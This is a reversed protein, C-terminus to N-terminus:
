VFDPVWARVVQDDRIRYVRNDYGEDKMIRTIRRQDQHKMSRAPLGLAGESLDLTTMYGRMRPTEGSMDPTDMWRMIASRWPDDSKWNGHEGKALREAEQWAIGSQLFRDRGEAWLQDREAALRDTDVQTFGPTRGVGLPLWRREGNPNALFDKENTTAIMIFRRKYQTTMEMFKPTWHEERRTIWALIEEEERSKLGQLEALEVIVKGRMKRAREVEPEHFSMNTAFESTPSMALVGSSKRMGQIGTLIPVMDAQCGPDLVRGALATWVYAGVSRAYGRTDDLVGFHEHWFPEIRSVGDWRLSDLWAVATDFSREVAVMHVGDRVLERGVGKLGVAEMQTRLRSYDVDGFPRWNETGREACVVSDKFIDYRLVIPTVRPSELALQVNTLSTEITGAGNRGFPPLILPDCIVKGNLHIVPDQHAPTATVAMGSFQDALYGSAQLFDSKNRADCSNHFCVFAGSPYGNTGAPFYATSTDGKAGGSHETEWPCSILIGGNSLTGFMDWRDSIWEAIPDEIAVGDGRQRDGRVKVELADIDIVLDVSDLFEAHFGSRKTVPDAVGDDFVPASTFHPQVTQFVSHDLQLNGSKAWAKLTASDYPTKLWFWAHCRLQGEKGPAGASSSLQWRFSVDRFAPPLCESIYELTAAEGDLPDSIVPRFQDIEILVSHLPIDDFHEKLRRLPTPVNPRPQGRIICATPESELSSLLESLAQIGDVTHPVATFHKANAYPLISGDARWTKTLPLGQSWLTTIQDSM